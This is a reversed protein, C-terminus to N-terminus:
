VVVNDKLEEDLEFFKCPYVYSAEFHGQISVFFFENGEVSTNYLGASSLKFEKSWDYHKYADPMRWSIGSKFYFNWIVKTYDRDRGHSHPEYVTEESIHSLVEKTIALSDNRLMDWVARERAKLERLEIVYYYTHYAAVGLAAVGAWWFDRLFIFIGIALIISPAIYSM